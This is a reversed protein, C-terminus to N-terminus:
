LCRYINKGVRRRQVVNTEWSARAPNVQKSRAGGRAGPLSIERSVAPGFGELMNQDDESFFEGSTNAVSVDDVEFSIDSLSSNAARARARAVM